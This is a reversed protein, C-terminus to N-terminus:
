LLQVRAVIMSLVAVISDILLLPKRYLAYREWAMSFDATDNGGLLLYM